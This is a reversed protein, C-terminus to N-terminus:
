IKCKVSGLQNFIYLQPISFLTSSVKKFIICSLFSKFWTIGILPVGERSGLDHSDLDRERRKGEGEREEGERRKEEKENKLTIDLPCALHNIIMIIAHRM